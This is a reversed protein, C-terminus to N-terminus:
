RWRFLHIISTGLQNMSDQINALVQMFKGPMKAQILPIPSFSPHPKPKITTKPIPSATKSAPLTSRINPPQATSVSRPQSAPSLPQAPALQHSPPMVGSGCLTTSSLSTGCGQIDYSQAPSSAYEKKICIHTLNDTNSTTCRIEFWGTWVTGDAPNKFVEDISACLITPSDYPHCLNPNYDSLQSYSIPSCSILTGYHLPPTKDVEPCSLTPWVCDSGPDTPVVHVKSEPCAFPLSDARPMLQRQWLLLLM